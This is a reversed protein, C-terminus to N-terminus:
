HGSRLSNPQSVNGNQIASQVSAALLNARPRPSAQRSGRSHNDALELSALRRNVAPLVDRDESVHRSLVLKELEHAPMNPATLVGQLRSIQHHPTSPGELRAGLVGRGFLRWPSPSNWTNFQSVTPSDGPTDSSGSSVLAVVCAM